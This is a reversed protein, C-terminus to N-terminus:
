RECETGPLPSTIPDQHGLTKHLAAAILWKRFQTASCGLAGSYTEPAQPKQRQQAEKRKQSQCGMTQRMTPSSTDSNGLVPCLLDECINTGKWKLEHFIVHHRKLHSSKLLANQQPCSEPSAPRSDSPSWPKGCTPAEPPWPCAPMWVASPGTHLQQESSDEPTHLPVWPCAEGTSLISQAVDRSWYIGEDRSSGPAQDRSPASANRILLAGLAQKRTTVGASSHAENTRNSNSSSQSWWRKGVQCRYDWSSPLSLCSFRKFRPPPPQLSGLSYWQVGAQAISGSKKMRQPNLLNIGTSHESCRLARHEGNNYESEEDGMYPADRLSSSGFTSEPLM